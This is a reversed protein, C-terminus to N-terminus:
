YADNLFVYSVICSNLSHLFGTIADPRLTNRERRLQQELETEPSPSEAEEEEEEASQMVRQVALIAARHMNEILLSTYLSSM